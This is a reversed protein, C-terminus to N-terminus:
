SLYKCVMEMNVSEQRSEVVGQKRVNEIDKRINVGMEKGLQVGMQDFSNIGWIFGQVAIRHEYVALLKGLSEPTLEDLLLVNSPRNGEFHKCLDRNLKGVALANPQAVFNAFLEDYNEDVKNNKSLNKKFCIFDNLSREGQHLSQYFSHQGKTGAEGFVFFGTKYDVLQGEEKGSKVFTKGNSEMELQQIHAPLYCLAESYPLVTKNSIGVINRNYVDLIGLAASINDFPKDRMSYFQEDVDCAGELVKRVKNFGFAISLPLVGVASTASFRGGVWDWMEFQKLFPETDLNTNKTYCIRNFDELCTKNSSIVVIQNNKLKLTEKVRKLNFLTERTTFTKSVVIILLEDKDCNIDYNIMKTITYPDINAVFNLKIFENDEKNLNPVSNLDSSLTRTSKLGEYLFQTGLYSGGIGVVISEKVKKGSPMVMGNRISASFDEIDKLVNTVSDKITNPLLTSHKCPKSIARLAVHLASRDETFNIHGGNYMAEIKSPIDLARYLNTLHCIMTSDICQYSFDYNIGLSDICTLGNRTSDQVLNSLKTTKLSENYYNIINELEVSFLTM